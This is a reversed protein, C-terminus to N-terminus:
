MTLRLNDLLVELDRKANPEEFLYKIGMGPEQGAELHTAGKSSWVVVGKLLIPNDRNPISLEFMCERGLELPSPTKIFTGGRSLNESYENVFADVRKYAIKLRAPKKKSAETRPRDDGAAGALRADSGESIFGSPLGSTGMSSSTPESGRGDDLFGSPLRTEEVFGSPLTANRHMNSGRVGTGASGSMGPAPPPSTLPNPRPMGPTTSENLAFPDAGVVKSGFGDDLGGLNLGSGMDPPAQWGSLPNSSSSDTLSAPRSTRSPALTSLPQSVTPIGEALEDVLKDIDLSNFPDPGLIGELSREETVPRRANAFADTSELSFPDRPPGPRQFPDASRAANAYPDNSREHRVSAPAKEVVGFPDFEASRAPTVERPAKEVVGFADVGPEPAPSAATKEVVGFPDFGSATSEAGESGSSTITSSPRPAKRGFPDTYQGSFPRSQPLHNFPDTDWTPTTPPPPATRAGPAPPPEDPMPPVAAKRSTDASQGGWSAAPASSGYLDFGPLGPEPAGPAPPPSAEQEMLPLLGEPAANDAATSAEANADKKRGFSDVFRRFLGRSAGAEANEGGPGEPVPAPTQEALIQPPAEYNPNTAREFYDKIMISQREGTFRDKASVNLIGNFDIRFTVDIKPEMKPARRIGTLVFEGLFTNETAKKSEGQRVVIKVKEQNDMVTTFTRSESVPIVSNKSVIRTFVDGASDIGLSFPTVDLLLIEGKDETLAAAQVAAGIAVAEDPHVGKSPTRGFASKIVEHIRPMRTQGGVLIIDEVDSPKLNAEGLTRNVTGVTKQVLDEVLKELTERTLEAQLNVTGHIHPIMIQTKDVFSLECKAREAADKLRQLAVRDQRLDVRHLTKFNAALYDVVRNDFDEGGLYSDGNTALVEYVNNGIELISVDFTGGGLDYILIKKNVDKRYGYALAAATPENLLRLVRLGAKQGAEITAKRQANTFYAPCTIVAENIERGLHKEAIGKICKLLISSADVPSLTVEGIRLLIEQNPGEVIDYGVRKRADEIEPATIKRGILRKVTRLTNAPNSIAQAKAGHGVVFKNAGKLAIYSPLINYGKEDEIVKPRGNDVIAVCCNTTGLDIGIVNKM